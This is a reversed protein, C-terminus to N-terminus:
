SRRTSLDYLMISNDYYIEKKGDSSITYSSTKDKHDMIFVLYGHSALDKCIGSLITRNAGLGHSFIVPIMTCTHFESALNGQSLTDM